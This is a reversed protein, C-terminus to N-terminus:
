TSFTEFEVQIKKLQALLDQRQGILEEQNNLEAKRREHLDLFAKFISDLSKKLSAGTSKLFAEFKPELEDELEALVTKLHSEMDKRIDSRSFSIALQIDEPDKGSKQLIQIDEKKLHEISPKIKNQFGLRIDFDKPTEISQVNGDLLSLLSLSPNHQTSSHLSTIESIRQKLSQSESRIWEALESPILRNKYVMLDSAALRIAHCLELHAETYEHPSSFSVPKDQTFLLRTKEDQIKKLRLAMRGSFTDIQTAELSLGKDMMFTMEAMVEQRLDSIRQVFMNFKNKLGSEFAEKEDKFKSYIDMAQAEVQEIDEATFPKIQTELIRTTEKLLECVKAQNSQITYSLAHDLITKIKQMPHKMKSSEILSECRKLIEAPTASDYGEKKDEATDGFAVTSIWDSALHSVFPDTSDEQPKGKGSHIHQKMQSAILMRSPSVLFVEEATFLAHPKGAEDVHKFSSVVDSMFNEQIKKSIKEGHTILAISSNNSRRRADFFLQRLPEMSAAAFQDQTTVLIASNSVALADALTDHFRLRQVGEEDIGPTDVLSLTALGSVPGLGSFRLIVTLYHDLGRCWGFPLQQPIEEPFVPDFALRFFDQIELSARAIAGAGQYRPHFELGGSVKELLERLHVTRIEENVKALSKEQIYTRIQAATENLQASFPVLMLPEEASPDHVYRTPIATMTQQRKPALNQGSLCNIITSKGVSILGAVAISIQVDLTDGLLRDLECLETYYNGLHRHRLLVEKTKMLLALFSHLLQVDKELAAEAEPGLEKNKKQLAHRKQEFREKKLAFKKEQITVLFDMAEELQSQSFVFSSQPDGDSGGQLESQFLFLKNESSREIFWRVHAELALLKEEGGAIESKVSSLDQKTQKFFTDPDEKPAIYILSIEEDEEPLSVPRSLSNRLSKLFYPSPLASAPTLDKFADYLLRDVRSSNQIKVQVFQRWKTFGPITVYITKILYLAGNRFDERPSSLFPGLKISSSFGSPKMEHILKSM